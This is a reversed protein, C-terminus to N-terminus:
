DQDDDDTLTGDTLYQFMHKFEADQIYDETAITPLDALHIITEMNSQVPTTGDAPRQDSDSTDVTVTQDINDDTMAAQNQTAGMSLQNGDLCEPLETCPRHEGPEGINQDVLGDDTM